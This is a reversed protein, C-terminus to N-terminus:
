YYQKYDMEMDLGVCGCCVVFLRCVDFFCDLMDFFGWGSRGDGAIGGM